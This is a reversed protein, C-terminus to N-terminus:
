PCTVARGGATRFAPLLCLECVSQSAGTANCVQAKCVELNFNIHMPLLQLGFFSKTVPSVCELVTVEGGCAFSSPLVSAHVVHWLRSGWSKVSQPPNTILIAPGVTGCTGAFPTSLLLCGLPRVRLVCRPLLKELREGEQKSPILLDRDGILLLVRAQM